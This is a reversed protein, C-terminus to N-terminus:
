SFGGDRLCAYTPVGTAKEVEKVMREQDSYGDSMHMLYIKETNKLNMSKLTKLTAYLSM